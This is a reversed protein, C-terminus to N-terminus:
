SIFYSFTVAVNKAQLLSLPFFKVATINSFETGTFWNAKEGETPFEPPKIIIQFPVAKVPFIMLGKVM